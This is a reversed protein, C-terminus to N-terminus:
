IWAMPHRNGLEELLAPTFHLGATPAAIAGPNRAYVTQYREFDQPREPRRIYPPLPLHGLAELVALPRDPFDFRVLRRGTGELAGIVEGKLEIAGNAFSLVTKPRLCRGPRGLCWLELIGPGQDLPPDLILLEVLGPHGRRRGLLRAPTVKADNLVLLSEPPLFQGINAFLSRMISQDRRNAIMLRSAGRDRAPEQAILGPPLAYRYDDLVTTM